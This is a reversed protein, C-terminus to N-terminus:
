RPASTGAAAQRASEAESRLKADGPAKKMAQEFARVADPYQRLEVYSRALLTWDDASGDQQQLRKSLRDAAQELTLSAKGTMQDGAAPPPMASPATASRTMAFPAPATAAQRDPAGLSIVLVAASIGIALVAVAGVIISTKKDLAMDDWHRNLLGLAV